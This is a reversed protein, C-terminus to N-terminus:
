MLFLCSIGMPLHPSGHMAYFAIDSLTLARSVDLGLEIGTHAFQMNPRTETIQRIKNKLSIEECICCTTPLTGSFQHGLSCGVGLCHHIPMPHDIGCCGQM